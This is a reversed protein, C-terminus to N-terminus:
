YPIRDEPIDDHIKTDPAFKKVLEILVPPPVYQNVASIWGKPGILNKVVSSSVHEHRTAAPLWIPRAADELELHRNITVFTREFRYDDENRLGRIYWDADVKHCYDVLYQNEFVDSKVRASQADTLLRLTGHPCPWIEKENEGIQLYDVWGGNICAELMARREALSFLGTKQPNVGIAVIVTDFLDAAQAILDLHGFTLVDLSGAYVATRNRKSM